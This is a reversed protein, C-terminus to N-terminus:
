KVKSQKPKAKPKARPGYKATAAARTEAAQTRGTIGAEIGKQLLGSQVDRAAQEAQARQGAIEQMAALQQQNIAGTQATNALALANRAQQTDSAGQARVGGMWNQQGTNLQAASRRALEANQQAIQQDLTAQEAAPAGSAGFAGLAEGLTNQQPSLQMLPVNSYAQSVPLNQMFAANAANIDATNYGMQQQLYDLAAQKQQATAQEAQTYQPMASQLYQTYADQGAQTYEQQGREGARRQMQAAEYAGQRQQAVTPKYAGGTGDTEVKPIVDPAYAETVGQNWAQLQGGTQGFEAGKLRAQAENRQQNAINSRTAPGQTPIPKGDATVFKKTKPDLRIRSAM